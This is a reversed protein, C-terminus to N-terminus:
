YRKLKRIAMKFEFKYPEPLLPEATHIKTQRADRVEHDNLIQTFYKRWRGLIRHSDTVLDCKEDKVINIRPQYSKKFENIGRCFDRINKMENKTELEDIKAKLYEKRKKESIDTLKGNVNSLDDIGIQNRDLLL